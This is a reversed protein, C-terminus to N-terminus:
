CRMFGIATETTYTLATCKILNKATSLTSSGIGSNTKHLENAFMKFCVSMISEFSIIITTSTTALNKLSWLDREKWHAIRHTENMYVDVKEGTHEVEQTEKFTFGLETIIKIYDM